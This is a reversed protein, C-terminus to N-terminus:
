NAAFGPPVRGYCFECRLLALRLPIPSHRLSTRGRFITRERAIRREVCLADVIRMRRRVANAHQHHAKPRATDGPIMDVHPKALEARGRREDLFPFGFLYGPGLEAAM